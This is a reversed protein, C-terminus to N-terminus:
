KPLPVIVSMRGLLQKRQQPSLKLKKALEKMMALQRKAAARIRSMKMGRFRTSLPDAKEAWYAPPFSRAWRGVVERLSGLDEDRLSLSGAIERSFNKALEEPGTVPAPRAFQAWVLGSSFLDFSSRGRTAEPSYLARQENSLLSAAEEYFRDKLETEGLLGELKFEHTEALARRGDDETAYRKAMMALTEIQKEDLPIGAMSLMAHIQNAVVLPHTFSGNIGTGPVEGKAFAQVQEILKGNIQQSKGLLDLPMDGKEIAEALKALLPQMDRMSSGVVKWDIKDLADKFEPDLFVASLVAPEAAEEPTESADPEAPAEVVKERANRQEAEELRSALAENKRELEVIESKAKTYLEQYDLNQSAMPLTEGASAQGALSDLAFWTAGGSLVGITIAGLVGSRTVTMDEVELKTNIELELTGFSGLELRTPSLDGSVLRDRPSLTLSLRSGAEAFARDSSGIWTLKGRAVALELRGSQPTSHRSSLVALAVLFLGAAVARILVRLKRQIPKVDESTHGEASQRPQRWSASAEGPNRLEKEIRETLDPPKVGGVLQELGLDLLREGPDKM